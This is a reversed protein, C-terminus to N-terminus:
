NIFRYSFKILFVDHPFVDFLDKMNNGFHFNGDDDFGNRSQSWVLYLTSGPRYEWRAVFNSLFFLANFDPKDFGYDPIGDRDEDILYREENLSYTLQEKGYNSFRDYYNEAQPNTIQKIETYNGAAIFPQGYYQFSLDPTLFYNMRFAAMLVEQDIKGCIYRNSNNFTETSIYQLENSSKNYSPEFSVNFADIPKYELSLGIEKFTNYTLDSTYFVGNVGVTFKKNPNSGIYGWVNQGPVLKMAPGGRLLANSIDTGDRNIGLSFNWYNKFQTHVNTNIGSYTNNLGFDWGTWQNFNLNISRFISFPTWYRYGVWIVQFIDDARRLFGVDNMDLGPSRWNIWTMYRWHGEGGKNFSIIGGHGTLSTATPDYTAYDNDPRQFYRAPAEQLQQIAEKTGIIHSFFGKVNLSYTRNKWTHNFDFGGTYAATALEPFDTANLDRNTATFMGGIRTEGKKFDKQVRGAFYNTFPEVKVESQEGNLSVKAVEAATVSEMIGVSWGKRTKGTVKFAGLIRTNEPQDVYDYDEPYFHPKRGIRRSYFLNDSSSGNDGPTIGFSLINKGEIFFPRKEMFYSEFATLNVESPDAEVQGFDPNVTFDMILDNTLGIKGDIGVSASSEKGPTFPNGEEGQYSETKGVVYPQIEVQRRPKLDELGKLLGFNHTWGSSEKSIFQWLSVEDKRHIYRVVELGWTQQNNASFRLQTLPIRFEACWGEADITTAAYWIADWSLDEQEGDEINIGDVKVGAASVFFFFSTMKDFYSDFQIGVLDGDMADRRTLRRTIKEPVSDYARIAVYINELDYTLKFKTQQSPKAKQIPEYQIFSDQWEVGEWAKDGLNGDIVPKDDMLRHTQYVRLSDPSTAFAMLSTIFVLLTLVIHKM